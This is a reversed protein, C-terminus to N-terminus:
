GAARRRVQGDERELNVGEDIYLCTLRFLNAARTTVFKNTQALIVFSNTIIGQCYTREM